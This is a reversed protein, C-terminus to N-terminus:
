INSGTKTSAQYDQVAGPTTQVIMRGEERLDVSVIDKELLGDQEAAQGLRSLALGIEGEPMKAIVGAAFVLDWRRGGIWKAAKVRSAIFPEANLNKMLEPAHAPADDGMVIILDKFRGLKDKTIAKGEEDLLELEGGTQWLVLPKKEQLGVYVTDPLRREVRADRVWNIKKIQERAKDPDFSFLPDGKEVSIIAKLIDADTHNRGEVLVNEVTFGMDAGAEVGQATMWNQTKEMNGSLWFWSGAWFGLVAIGLVIGFRKLWPMVVALLGKRRKNTVLTSRRTAM